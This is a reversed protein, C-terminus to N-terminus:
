GDRGVVHVGSEMKSTDPATVDLVSEDFGALLARLEGFPMPRAFLYGQLYRCDMAQLEALQAETEVGEAVVDMGLARGLEVVGAVLARGRPDTDIGAVFERDMKLIQVPLRALYALSSWGRGFDDLSLVVGMGRLTRLDGLAGEHADLLVSETIELILKGAPLRAATLAAAVDPALCGAQLHRPSVNVGTQVDWGDALLVAAHETAVRLVWRQLPVILGDEEALPIFEDPPVTGLLPHEWRVLAELGLVRRDHVGVVPQYLVRLQGEAIAAPLDRALRTRRGVAADVAEGSSRVCRKGAAKAARLALDAQRVTAPADAAPDVEALGISGSVAFRPGAGQGDPSTARFPRDLAVVLREALGTAEELGGPVLLAFEDGGLRAVLDQERAGARLQDAVQTLLEDGADHGAVDNVAKFGDLDVLLVCSPRGHAARDRAAELAALFRARNPLGTLFDTWAMRELERQTSRHATVDRLHLVLGSRLASGPVGARAAGSLEVDRRDGSGTVMRVTPPLAGPESPVSGRLVDELVARDGAEVLDALRRGTLERESWGLQGDVAGSVWHVRGDGDLVVTVDEASAALARFYAEARQLRRTLRGGDVVWVLSRLSTCLVLLGIAAQEPTTFSHGTGLLWIVVGAVGYATAHSVALGFLPLGDTERGPESHYGRDSDVAQVAAALMAAWALSVLLDSPAEGLVRSLAAVVTAVSAALMSVLLWVAPARRSAPARSVTMLAGACLLAAGAPYGMAQLVGVFGGGSPSGSRSLVLGALLLGAVVVIAGDLLERVGARDSRPPLLLWCAALALPLALVQAAHEATGAPGDVVSSLRGVALLVAVATMAWWPRRAARDLRSAHRAVVVATALAGVALLVSLTGEGAASGLAPGVVAGAVALVALVVHLFRSERREAASAAPPMAGPSATRPPAAFPAVVSPPVTRAAAGDDRRQAGLDM